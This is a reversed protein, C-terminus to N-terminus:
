GDLYPRKAIRAIDREPMTSLICACVGVTLLYVAAIALDAAHAPWFGALLAALLVGPLLCTFIALFSGIVLAAGRMLANRAWYQRPDPAARAQRQLQVSRLAVLLATGLLERPAFAAGASVGGAAGHILLIFAGLVVLLTTVKAVDRLHRTRSRQPHIRWSLAVIALPELLLALLLTPLTLWGIEILALAVVLEILAARLTATQVKNWEIRSTMAVGAPHLPNDVGTHM